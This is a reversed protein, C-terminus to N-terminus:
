FDLYIFLHRCFKIKGHQIHIIRDVVSNLLSRDHSIIMFTKNSNLLEEEFIDITELDLHNTPEDWLILEHPASLGLALGVKRQEGGSFDMMTQSFDTLGFFKLYSLYSNYIRDEGMKNLEDYLQTQQSVLSDFNGDGSTLKLNIQDLQQKIAKFKPYFEFFYDSLSVGELIPLEQPVIFVSFNKSKDFTFPPVTTDPPIMQWSKLSLLNEMVMSVM